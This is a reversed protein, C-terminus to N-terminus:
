APFYLDVKNVKNDVKILGSVSNVSQCFLILCGLWHYTVVFDTWFLGVYLHKPFDSSQFLVSHYSCAATYM